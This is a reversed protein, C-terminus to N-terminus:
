YMEVRLPRAVWSPSGLREVRLRYDGSPVTDGDDSRGDWDVCIVGQIPRSRGHLLTAVRRRRADVISIRYVPLSMTGVVRTARIAVHIREGPRLIAPWIEVANETGMLPDTM